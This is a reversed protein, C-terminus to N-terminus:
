SALSPNNDNEVTPIWNDLAANSIVADYLAQRNDLVALRFAEYRETVCNPCPKAHEDGETVSHMCTRTAQRDLACHSM